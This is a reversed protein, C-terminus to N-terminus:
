LPVSRIVHSENGASLRIFTIGQPRSSGFAHSIKGADAHFSDLIKGSLDTVKVDYDKDLEGSLVGASLSLKSSFEPQSKVATPGPLPVGNNDLPRVRINRYWNGVTTTNWYGNGHVQIATYGTGSLAKSYFSPWTVNLTQIWKTSGLKRMFAQHHPPNGWMKTRLENWGNPDYMDAAVLTSKDTIGANGETGSFPATESSGFKYSCNYFSPGLDEMEQPYSGGICNKPKYDIVTQYAKANDAMRHYLGADNGFDAWYELIVEQNDYKKNTALAGGGAGSPAQQTYMAKAVPDVKYIGGQSNSHNADEGHCDNWWGKFDTGNFIGVFGSDMPISVSDTGPKDQCPLNAGSPVAPPNAAFIQMCAAIAVATFIKPRVM